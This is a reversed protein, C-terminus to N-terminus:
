SGLVFLRPRKDVWLPTHLDPKAFLPSWLGEITQKMLGLHGAGHFPSTEWIAIHSKWCRLDWNRSGSVPDCPSGWEAEEKKLSTCESNPCLVDLHKRGRKSSEAVWPHTVRPVDYRVIHPKGRTLQFRCLDELLVWQAWFNQGPHKQEVSLSLVEIWKWDEDCPIAIPVHGPFLLGKTRWTQSLYRGGKGRQYKTHRLGTQVPKHETDYVIAKLNKLNNKLEELRVWTRGGKKRKSIKHAEACDARDQAGHWLLVCASDGSCEGAREGGAAAKGRCGGAWDIEM